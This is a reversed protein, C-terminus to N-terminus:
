REAGAEGKEALRRQVESRRVMGALGNRAKSREVKVPRAAGARVEAVAVRVGALEELDSYRDGAREYEALAQALYAARREKDGLIDVLSAYGDAGRNEVPSVYVQRVKGDPYSVEVETILM